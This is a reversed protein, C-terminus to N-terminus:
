CLCRWGSVKGLQGFDGADATFKVMLLLTKDATKQTHNYIIIRRASFLITFARRDRPLSSAPERWKQAEPARLRCTIGKFRHARGRRADVICLLYTEAGPAAQQEQPCQGHTTKRELIGAQPNHFVAM